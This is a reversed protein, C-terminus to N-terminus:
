LKESQEFSFLNRGDDATRVWGRRGIPEKTRSALQQLAKEDAHNAIFRHGNNWMRGVVHGTGPTGDRNFEVTYTEVVAEGEAKEDVPPCFVDEVLHPLPNNKPYPSGDKRPQTSLCVVHQHTLMGGNALVLGHRSKGKRLERTMETLAHMSYNNGAGGFSTLGGLLTIPKSPSTISLGLHHCALKPVIPFCSYFDYIDIEDKTLGSVRLGADLSRSISPASYFDPREWFHDADDTGAGGLAYIWRSKPIGLERAYETSTLICTGALNVNNFANMLLPDVSTLYRDWESPITKIDGATAAPKGHNWALPNGEAVKVFNAYVEASEQDNAAIAQNRHARFANEYLPYVHIPLRQGFRKVDSVTIKRAAEDPPTWGPPPMKGAAACAGLSALAEGGTIVAVKTEGFSIRRAAEDFLKAPSNGGHESLVKYKPQVGLKEGILGPLDHYNWTWTAVVSISDISAQLRSTASQPLSTDKIALETAQLMLQLPELADKVALSQNKVDGVGVLIPIKRKNM